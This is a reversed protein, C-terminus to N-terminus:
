HAGLCRTRQVAASILNGGFTGLRRIGALIQVGAPEQRWVTDGSSSDWPKM